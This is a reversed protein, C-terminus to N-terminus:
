LQVNEFFETFQYFTIEAFDEDYSYDKMVNMIAICTQNYYMVYYSLHGERKCGTLLDM